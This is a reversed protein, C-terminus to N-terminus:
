LLTLYLFPIHHLYLKPHFISIPFSHGLDYIIGLIHPFIALFFCVLILIEISFLVDEVLSIDVGVDQVLTLHDDPCRSNFRSPLSM